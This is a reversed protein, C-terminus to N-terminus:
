SRIETRLEMLAKGLLNRGTLGGKGDRIGWIFDTPSDEAINVDGTALLAKRFPDYDFKVRLGAMMVEYKVAEWDQRLEVANGMRKASWTNLENAIAKHSVPDLAKSAQYFHEVTPYSGQVEASWPQDARITFPGGVFNSFEGGYFFLWEGELGEVRCPDYHPLSSSPTYITTM